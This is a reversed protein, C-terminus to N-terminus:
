GKKESELQKELRARQKTAGTKPLKAIKQATTLLDYKANREDAAKRRSELVQRTRKTGRRHAM